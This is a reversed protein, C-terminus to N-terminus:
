GGQTHPIIPVGTEQSVQAAAWFLLDEYPTIEWKRTAVKIVGARIDTAGIGGCLEKHIMEYIERSADAYAM